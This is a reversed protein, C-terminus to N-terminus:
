AIEHKPSYPRAIILRLAMKCCLREPPRFVCDGTYKTNVQIVAAKEAAFYDEFLKINITASMLVLKIDTRSHILCKLVGLLFDGMLHREHIEDLIIVDYDPLNESSM